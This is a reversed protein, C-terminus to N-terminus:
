ERSSMALNGNDALLASAYEEANMIGDYAGAIGLVLFILGGLMPFSLSDFTASTVMAAAIAAVLAQGFHRRCPDHTKRRGAAACQIGALYLWILCILGAIGTEILMHYYMDDTWSYTAPLFTAWGRGFLPHASIYPWDLSFASIRTSYVSGDGTTSFLGTFYAGLTGLLGSASVKLVVLAPLLAVLFGRRQRPTWTPVLFLLAVAAGVIGSRSVTLPIAFGILAVPLWKRIRGSRPSNLAQHLAFPLLLAMSVGFEIPDVATSSPRYFSGRTLLTSFDINLSLGPIRVYDTVNIGSYFEFIGIAAVVSGFMVARRMIIDIQEYRTIGQSLVVILGAWSLVTILGREASLQEVVPIARTMAAVFSALVALAFALIALRVPRGAGSPVVKGTLWSGAYWILILLSLIMAPTGIGGLPSFILSSPIFLLAVLYATILTVIDFRATPFAVGWALEWTRLAPERRISPWTTESV